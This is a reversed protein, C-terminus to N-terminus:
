YEIKVPLSLNKNSVDFKFVMSSDEHGPIINDRASLMINFNTTDQSEFTSCYVKGPTYGQPLSYIYGFGVMPFIKSKPVVMGSPDKCTISLLFSGGKKLPITDNPVNTVFEHAYYFDPVNVWIPVQYSSSGDWIKLVQNVPSPTVKRGLFGISMKTRSADTFYPNDAIFYEFETQELTLRVDDFHGSTLSIMIQKNEDCFVNVTDTVLAIKIENPSLPNNHEKSCSFLSLLFFLMLVIRLHGM